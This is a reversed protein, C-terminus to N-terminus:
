GEVSPAFIEYEDESLILYYTGSPKYKMIEDEDRIFDQHVGGTSKFIINMVKPNMIFTDDVTTEFIVPVNVASEFSKGQFSSAYFLSASWSSVERKPTYQYPTKFKVAGNDM